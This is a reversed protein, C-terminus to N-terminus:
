EHDIIIGPHQTDLEARTLMQSTHILDSVWADWNARVDAPSLVRQGDNMPIQVQGHNWTHLPIYFTGTTLKIEVAKMATEKRPRGVSRRQQQYRAVEDAGIDYDRGRKEAVIGGTKILRAVSRATLGLLAAAEHTTM